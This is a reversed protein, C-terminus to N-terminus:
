TSRNSIDLEKSYHDYSIYHKYSDSNNWDIKGVNNEDAYRQIEALVLEKEAFFEAQEKTPFLRGRQLYGEYYKRFTDCVIYGDGRVIYCEEEEKPSFPKKNVQVKLESLEKELRQIKENISLM